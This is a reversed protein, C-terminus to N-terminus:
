WRLPMPVKSVLAAVAVEEAEEAGAGVVAAEEALRV